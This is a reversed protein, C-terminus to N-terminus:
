LGIAASAAVLCGLLLVFGLVRLDWKVDDTNQQSESMGMRRFIFLVSQLIMWGVGYAHLPYAWRTLNVQGIIKWVTYPYM